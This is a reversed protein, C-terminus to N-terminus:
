ETQCCRRWSDAASSRVETGQQDNFNCSLEVLQTKVAVAGSSTGVAAVTEHRFNITILWSRTTHQDSTATVAVVTDDTISILRAPKSVPGDLAVRLSKDRSLSPNWFFGFQDRLNVGDQAFVWRSFSQTGSVKGLYKSHGFNISGRGDIVQCNIANSQKADAAHTSAPLGAGAVTLCAAVWLAIRLRRPPIHNDRRTAQALKENRGTM